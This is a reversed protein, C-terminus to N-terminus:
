TKVAIIVAVVIIVVTAVALAAAWCMWRRSRKQYTKAQVLENVGTEVSLKSKSVQVFHADWHKFWQLITENCAHQRQGPCTQLISM